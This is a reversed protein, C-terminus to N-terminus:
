VPCPARRPSRARVPRARGLGHPVPQLVAHPVHHEARVFPLARAREAGHPAPEQGLPRDRGEGDPRGQAEEGRGDEGAPAPGRHGVEQGAARGGEGEGGETDGERDELGPRLRHGWAAGDGIRSQGGGPFRRSRATAYGVIIVASPFGATQLAGDASDQQVEGDVAVLGNSGQAGAAPCSQVRPRRASRAVAGSAASRAVNPSPMRGESRFRPRLRGATPLM